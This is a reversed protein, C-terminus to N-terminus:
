LYLGIQLAILTDATRILVFFLILKANVKQRHVFLSRVVNPKSYPPAVFIYGAKQESNPKQEPQRVQRGTPLYCWAISYVIFM